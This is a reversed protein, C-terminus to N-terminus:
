KISSKKAWILFRQQTEADAQLFWYQLMQEAINEGQLRTTKQTTNTGAVAITTGPVASVTSPPITAFSPVSATYKGVNYIAMATELTAAKNLNEQHLVDHRVSLPHGDDGILQFTPNKSFKNGDRETDIVPLKIAVSRTNRTNFVVVLPPSAYLVNPDAPLPKAVKFLIQHQGSNLELSDAGKLLSGSMNKGDVVLLDIEPALKLTTALASASCCVALIGAVVLGFKM